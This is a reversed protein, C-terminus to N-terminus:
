QKFINGKDRNLNSQHMQFGIKLHDNKGMVYLLDEHKIELISKDRKANEVFIVQEYNVVMLLETQVGPFLDDLVESNQEHRETHGSIVSDNLQTSPISESESM